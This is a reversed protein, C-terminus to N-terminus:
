FNPIAIDVKTKSGTQANIITAFSPLDRDHIFHEILYTLAHGKVTEFQLSMNEIEPMAPFPSPLDTVFTVKDTGLGILIEIRKIIM